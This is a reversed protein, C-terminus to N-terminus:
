VNAADRLGSTFAKKVSPLMVICVLPRILISGLYASSCVLGMSSEYDYRFTTENIGISTSYTNYARLTSRPVCLIVYVIILCLALKLSSKSESRDSLGTKARLKIILLVATVCLLMLPLLLNLIALITYLHIRQSSDLITCTVTTELPVTTALAFDPVSLSLSLIWVFLTPQTISVSAASIRYDLNMTRPPTSSDSGAVLSHRSSGIEDDADQDNRRNRRMLEKDELNVTALIHLALTAVLYSSATSAFM